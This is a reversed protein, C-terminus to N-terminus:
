AIRRFADPTHWLVALLFRSAYGLQGVAGTVAGGLRRLWYAIGAAVETSM